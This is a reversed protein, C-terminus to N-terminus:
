VTIESQQTLTDKYHKNYASKLLALDVIEPAKWNELAITLKPKRQSFYDTIITAFVYSFNKKSADIIRLVGKEFDVVKSHLSHLKGQPFILLLNDPQNLLEGAYSLSEMLSKTNKQISFAGLYKLFGVKRATDELVMVHFKKKFYIKNLYFILFGDWWSFHNSLLLIAKNPEFEIKNHEFGSFDKKIIREIYWSFFAYIIKNSKPKIM